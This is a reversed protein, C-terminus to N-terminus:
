SFLVKKMLFFASYLSLTNSDVNKRSCMSHLMTFVWFIWMKLNESSFSKLFLCPRTIAVQLWFCWVKWNKTQWTHLKDSECYSQGCKTRFLFGRYNLFILILFSTFYSLSIEWLLASNRQSSLLCKELLNRSLVAPSDFLM